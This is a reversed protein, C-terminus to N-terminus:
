KRLEKMCVCICLVGIVILCFLFGGWLPALVWWWSWDIVGGLKLGIFLLALLSFFSVGSNSTTKEAM